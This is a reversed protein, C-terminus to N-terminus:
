LHPLPFHDNEKSSWLRQPFKHSSPHSQQKFCSSCAAASPFCVFRIERADAGLNTYYGWLFINLSGGEAITKGRVGDCQMPSVTMFKPNGGCLNRNEGETDTSQRIKETSFTTIITPSKNKYPWAFCSWRMKVKSSIFWTMHKVCARELYTIAIQRVSVHLFPCSM